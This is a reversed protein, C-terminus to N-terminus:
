EAFLAELNKLQTVIVEAQAKTIGHKEGLRKYGKSASVARGISQFKFLDDLIALVIAKTVGTMDVPIPNATKPRGAIKTEIQEVTFEGLDMLDPAANQCDEITPNSM